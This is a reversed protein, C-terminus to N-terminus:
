GSATIEHAGSLRVIPPREDMREVVDQGALRADELRGLLRERPLARARPAEQREEPGREDGRDRVDVRPVEGVFM